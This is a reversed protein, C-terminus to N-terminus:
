YCISGPGAFVNQVRGAERLAKLLTDHKKLGEGEQPRAVAQQKSVAPASPTQDGCASLAPLTLLTALCLGTKKPTKM